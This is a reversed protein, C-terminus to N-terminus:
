HLVFPAGVHLAADPRHQPAIASTCVVCIVASGIERPRSPGQNQQGCLKNHQKSRGLDALLPREFSNGQGGVPVQGVDNCLLYKQPM